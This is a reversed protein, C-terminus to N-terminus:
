GGSGWRQGMRLEREPVRIQASAGPAMTGNLFLEVEHSGAPIELIFEKAVGPTIEPLEPYTVTHSARSKLSFSMWPKQNMHVRVVYAQTGSATEDFDIRTGVRLRLPGHVTLGVPTETDFRYCTAETDGSQVRLARLYDEPAFAVWRTQTRRPTPSGTLARVAAGASGEVPYIRVRHVGAPIKIDEKRLAGIEGGDALVAASTPSPTLRLVEVEAGGVEIRLRIASSQPGPSLHRAVVRLTVPGTITYQAPRSRTARYYTSRTKKDGILVRVAGAHAAPKLTVLAALAPGITSAAILAALAIGLSTVRWRTGKMRRM